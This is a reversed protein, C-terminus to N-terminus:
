LQEAVKIEKRDKSENCYDCANICKVTYFKQLKEEINEVASEFSIVAEEDLIEWVNHEIAYCRPCRYLKGNSFSVCNRIFCTKFKEERECTSSSKKPQGLDIWNFNGDSWYNCGVENMKTILKNKTRLINDSCKSYDSLLIYIDNEACLQLVDKAPVVTGNTVIRLFQVKNNKKYKVFLKIIEYLEPHIFPEGGLITIFICKDVSKFINDMWKEIQEVSFFDKEKIYANWQTCDRCKLSCHTTISFDIYPICRENLLTEEVTREMEEWQEGINYRYFLEDRVKYIVDKYASSSKYTLIDGEM